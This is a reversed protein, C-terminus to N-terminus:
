MRLFVISHPSVLCLLALLNELFVHKGPEVAGVGWGWGGGGLIAYRCVFLQEGGNNPGKSPEQEPKRIDRDHLEYEKAKTHASRFTILDKKNVRVRKPYEDGGKMDTIANKDALLEEFKRKAALATLGGNKPKSAWEAYAVENMMEGVSDSLVPNSATVTEKFKMLCFKQNGARSTTHCLPDQKSYAAIMKRRNQEADMQKHYFDLENRTKAMNYLCNVAKKCTHCYVSSLPFSIADFVKFCGQCQRKTQTLVARGSGKGRGGRNKGGKGGRTSPPPPMGGQDAAGVVAEAARDVLASASDSIPFGPSGSPAAGLSGAPACEEFDMFNPEAPDLACVKPLSAIPVVIVTCKPAVVLTSGHRPQLPLPQNTAKASLSGCILCLIM